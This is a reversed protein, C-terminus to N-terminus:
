PKQTDLASKVGTALKAAEGTGWFHLFIIRPTELTMHNHIAVVNIGSHRLAKLVNQLESELMAFDGDVVAMEDSGAFAAWTNVGMASGMEHGSMTTKRGITIKYVGDKLTGSHGIAADIKKTDLKSQAPDINVRPFSVAATGKLQSFVARVGKALTEEDGMGGIHMFMIKPSESFFHNHLATVQLGADLAASMVSNVQGETLVIDGMVVAHEAARTFAAWATLGMMPNMKVGAADVHLDSRPLSLKYVAETQNWEGKMGTVAEIKAIDLTAAFATTTSVLTLLALAFSLAKM